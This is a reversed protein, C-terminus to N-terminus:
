EQTESGTNDMSHSSNGDDDWTTGDYILNEEARSM